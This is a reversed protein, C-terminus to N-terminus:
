NLDKKNVASVEGILKSQSMQTVALEARLSDREARLDLEMQTENAEQVYVINVNNFHEFLKHVRERAQAEDPATVYVTGGDPM